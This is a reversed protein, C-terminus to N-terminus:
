GTFMPDALWGTRTRDSKFNFAGKVGPEVLKHDPSYTPAEPKKDRAAVREADTAMTHRKDRNFNSKKDQTWDIMLNYKADPVSSKLKVELDLYTKKKGGHIRTVLPQDFKTLPKTMNYGSIGDSLDNKKMATLVYERTTMNMSM